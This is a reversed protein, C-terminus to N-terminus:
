RHRQEILYFPLFGDYRRNCRDEGEDSRHADYLRHVDTTGLFDFGRYLDFFRPRELIFDFVNPSQPVDCAVVGSAVDIEVRRLGVRCFSVFHFIACM